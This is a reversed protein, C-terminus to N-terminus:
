AGGLQSQINNLASGPVQIIPSEESKVREMYAELSAHFVEFAGAINDAEIDFEVPSNQVVERGDPLQMKSQKIAMGKFMVDKTEINVLMQVREGLNSVVTKVECMWKRAQKQDSEM